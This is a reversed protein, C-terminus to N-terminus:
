DDFGDDDAFEGASQLREAMRNDVGIIDEDLESEHNETVDPSDDGALIHNIIVLAGEADNVGGCVSSPHSSIVSALDIGSNVLSGEPSYRDWSEISYM